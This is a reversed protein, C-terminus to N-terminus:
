ELICSLTLSEPELQSLFSLVFVVIISITLTTM